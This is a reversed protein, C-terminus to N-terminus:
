EEVGLIQALIPLVLAAHEQNLRKSNSEGGGQRGPDSGLRRVKEGMARREPGQFNAFARRLIPLLAEFTEASLERLWRDLSRWLSDQHLILLASGQLVGEIWSAAQRAEGATSLSLRTQQQLEEESMAQQELLLRCCRGRILGHIQGSKTLQRLTSQWEKRLEERDLLNISEQGRNISEVMLQAADDDLSSCAGPLGIIIREFLGKIIPLIHESNTQRVNGYRVVRALAPLADLLHRVDAAIAARKQLVQLVKEVAGPLEALIVRDLLESLASLEETTEAKHAIAASAAIEIINGWINAEIVAIVFEVRWQIKWVEHFTGSKARQQQPEGWGINLLRLRHLLQSRERDTENRLDLDKQQIETTPKLRLRKQQSELDRQLPVAPTEAPVTGMQEGIELKNRILELQEANGNCLVTEIAEHHEAL